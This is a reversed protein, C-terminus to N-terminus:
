LRRLKEQSFRFAWKAAVSRRDEETLSSLVKPNVQIYKDLGYFLAKPTVLLRFVLSRM